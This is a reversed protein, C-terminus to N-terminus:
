FKLYPVLPRASRRKRLMAGAVGPAIRAMVWKAAVKLTLRHHAATSTEQRAKEYDSRCLYVSAWENHVAALRSHVTRAVGGTVGDYTLWREYMYQRVQLRTCDDALLEIQGLKRDVTRDFYALPKNVYCFATRLSLRFLYDTDQSVRLQPDFPGTALVVRRDAVLTPMFIGHNGSLVLATPDLILGEDQAYHKLDREFATMSLHPNNLYRADTFCAGSESGYRRIAQLELKNPAWYDDSDLFAVWDASAVALGRNLAVSKGNNTQWEYRIRSGVQASYSRVVEATGDTSGDDIVILEYESHSQQLVSDIARKLLLERNYTPILVSFSPTM